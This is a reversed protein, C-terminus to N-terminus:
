GSNGDLADDNVDFSVSEGSLDPDKLEGTRVESCIVWRLGADLGTGTRPRPVGDDATGPM